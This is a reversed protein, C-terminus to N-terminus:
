RSINRETTRRDAVLKELTEVLEYPTRHALAEDRLRRANLGLSPDGVLRAARDRITATDAERQDLYFGAGERQLATCRFIQDAFRTSIMLQPLGAMLAAAFTGFGGHNVVASCSPLLAHLPVSHAVRVNDPLTGLEDSQAPLMAAVVEVDLDAFAELVSAKSVFDGGFRETNATGLSVAIRSRGPPEHLWRPLVAPGNYPVHRVAVRPLDSGVGLSAPLPDFTVQGTLMEESFAVGHAAAREGVWDALPDEHETAPRLSLFLRRKAAWVDSCCLNRVHAAGVAAAAISGAYSLSDWVVLDPQWSRAFAVLDDILPDNYFAMGWAGYRATELEAAWDTLAPDLRSWETTASDQMDRQGAMGTIANSSDGVPVATLGTQVVADTLQPSSAFRVEHGATRLAWAIPALCHLHTKEPITVFLARM